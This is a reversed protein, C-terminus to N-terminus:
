ACPQKDKRAHEDLLTIAQAWGSGPWAKIQAWDDCSLGGDIRIRAEAEGLFALSPLGEFFPGLKFPTAQNDGTLEASLMDAVKAQEGGYLHASAMFHTYAGMPVGLQWAVYEQFLTFLAIDYPLVGWVAESRMCTVCQLQGDRLLYQTSIGCPYELRTLASDEPDLILGVARRSDHDKKLVGIIEPMQRMLRLGYATAIIGDRGAFRLAQDDYYAISALDARGCLEWVSRGMMKVMSLSRAPVTVFRDEPHDITLTVGVMEMTPRGRPSCPDGYKLVQRCAETFAENASCAAIM